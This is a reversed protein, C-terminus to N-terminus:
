GKFFLPHFLLTRLVRKKTGGVCCACAGVLKGWVWTHLDARETPWTINPRQKKKKECGGVSMYKTGRKKKGEPRLLKNKLPSPPLRLHFPLTFPPPLLPSPSSLPPHKAHVHLLRCCNQLPHKETRFWTLLSSFSNASSSSSSRALGFYQPRCRRRRSYYFSSSSHPPRYLLPFFLPPPPSPFPSLFQSFFFFFTGTSVSPTLPVEASTTQQKWPSRVCVVQGPHIAKKRKRRRNWWNWITTTTSRGINVSSLTFHRIEVLNWIM